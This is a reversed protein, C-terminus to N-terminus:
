SKKMNYVAEKIDVLPQDMEGIPEMSDLVKEFGMTKERMMVARDGHKDLDLEQNYERIYASWSFTINAWQKALSELRRMSEGDVDGCKECRGGCDVGSEDQNRIGDECTEGCDATCTTKEDGECIFNGCCETYSIPACEGESCGYTTCGYSRSCGEVAGLLERYECKGTESNVSASLCPNTVDCKVSNPGNQYEDSCCICGLVFTTLLLIFASKRM